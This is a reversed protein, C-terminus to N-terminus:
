KIAVFKKQIDELIKGEFDKLNDGVAKERFLVLSEDRLRKHNDKLQSYNVCDTSKANLFTKERMEKEYHAISDQIGRQCENQCLYTWASEICPVSGKNIAQTYSQCLELFLEGTIFKGNLVKPKTRKFIRQRLALMQEVFEPRLREDNSTQLTQLDKEEETPRVM